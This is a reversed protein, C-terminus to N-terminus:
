WASMLALSVNIHTGLQRHQWSKFIVALPRSRFTQKEGRYSDNRKWTGRDARACRFAEFHHSATLSSKKRIAAPRPWVGACGAATLKTISTLRDAFLNVQFQRLITACLLTSLRVLFM